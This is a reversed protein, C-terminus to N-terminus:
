ILVQSHVIDVKLGNRKRVGSLLLPGWWQSISEGRM